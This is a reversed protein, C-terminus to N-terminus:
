IAAGSFQTVGDTRRDTQGDTRPSYALSTLSALVRSASASVLVRSASASALVRSASASASAQVRSALDSAMSNQGEFNLLNQLRNFLFHM